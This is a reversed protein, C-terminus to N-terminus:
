LALDEQSDRLSRHFSVATPFVKARTSLLNLFKM